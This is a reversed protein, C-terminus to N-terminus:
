DVPQLVVFQKDIIARFKGSLAAWEVVDVKFPLVSESLAARLTDMADSSLREADMICLDLDSMPKATGTVRSGFARVELGPAYRWLIQRVLALHDPQLDISRM